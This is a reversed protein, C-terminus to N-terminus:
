AAGGQTNEPYAIAELQQLRLKQIELLNYFQNIAMLLTVAASETGEDTDGHLVALRATDTLAYIQKLDGVLELQQHYAKEAPTRQSPANSNIKRIFDLVTQWEEQPLGFLAISIDVPAINSM